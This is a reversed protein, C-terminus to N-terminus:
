VWEIPKRLWEMLTKESETQEMEADYEWAALPPLSMLISETRGDTELGFKTGRDYVLNFEAYRGRRLLQFREERETWAESAHREAIPLYAEIFADGVCRQFAFWRELEEADGRLYDYFIGGIGRCENRHRIHFYRDCEKKFRPYLEADFRDCAERLVGHFHRGDKEDAIYPTLDAGGGFWADGNSQEFYRFNAHVTPVRPSRPHIVLSVGTAFFESADSSILHTLAAPMAGHVASVNVGGKEIREGDALVRSHGGGGGPREWRDERFRGSGDFSELAKCIMNQLELVYASMRERLPISHDTYDTMPIANRSLTDFPAAFTDNRNM